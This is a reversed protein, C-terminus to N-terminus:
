AMNSFFPLREDMLRNEFQDIKNTVRNIETIKQTNRNVDNM